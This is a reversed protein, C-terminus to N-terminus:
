RVEQLLSGLMDLMLDTKENERNLQHSLKDLEAALQARVSEAEELERLGASLLAETDALDRQAQREESGFAGACRSSM